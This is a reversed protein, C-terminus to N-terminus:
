KLIMKFSVSQNPSGQTKTLIPTVVFDGANDFHSWQFLNMRDLIKNLFTKSSTAYVKGDHTILSTTAGYELEGDEKRVRDYKRIVVDAVDIVEGIADKMSIVDPSDLLEALALVEQVSEPNVTSKDNYKMKRKYVKSGDELTQLVVDFRDNSKEPIVVENEVKLLLENKEAM